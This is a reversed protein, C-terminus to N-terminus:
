NPTPLENTRSRAAWHAVTALLKAPRHAQYRLRRLWCGPMEPPGRGHRARDTRHHSRRVRARTIGPHGRLRGDGADAHGDSGRRVPMRGREPCSGCETALQGNEVATVEAGAKRLLLSILRRNDPGDEALLIRAHLETTGSATAAASLTPEVAAKTQRLLPVTDLPGPDITVSFTSGKGPASHVEITGGLAEVLRKSIALGLGTGGFKRRPRTTWRASPSSSSRWKNRM